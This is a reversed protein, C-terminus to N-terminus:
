KSRTSYYLNGEVLGSRIRSSYFNLLTTFGAMKGAAFLWIYVLVSQMRVGHYKREFKKGSAKGKKCQSLQHRDKQDVTVCRATWDDRSCFFGARSRFRFFFFERRSRAQWFSHMGVFMFGEDVGRQCHCFLILCCGRTNGKTLGM